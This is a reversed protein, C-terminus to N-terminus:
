ADAVAHREVSRVRLEYHFALGAALCALALSPAWSALFAPLLGAEGLAFSARDIVFYLFGVGVGITFMMAPGGSRQFRQALPIILFILLLPAALTAFRKQLVTKYQYQPWFGVAKDGIFGYLEFTTLESPPTTMDTLNGVPLDSQWEVRAETTVSHNAVRRTTVDLLTWLGGSVFAERADQQALLRGEEDRKFIVVNKYPPEGATDGPLRIIDTGARLWIGDETENPNKAPSYGAVGWANLNSLSAPVLRDDIAFQLGGALLAVPMLCVLTRFPSVGANWIAVLESNRVLRALTALGALLTAIQILQSVIEPLRLGAYTFVNRVGGDRSRAVEGSNVILDLTLLFFTLGFLLLFFRGLFVRSLYLTLTRM